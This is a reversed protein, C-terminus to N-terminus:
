WNAVVLRLLCCAEPYFRRFIKKETDCTLDVETFVELEDVAIETLLLDFVFKCM